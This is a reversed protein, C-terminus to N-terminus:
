PERRPTLGPFRRRWLSKRDAWLHGGSEADVLQANIRVRNQDRQLSGELVYRVSLERDIEKADITKGKYTFAHASGALATAGDPDIQLARNFM